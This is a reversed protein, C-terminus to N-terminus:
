GEASLPWNPDFLEPSASHTDLLDGNIFLQWEIMLKPYRAIFRQWAAYHARYFFTKDANQGLQRELEAVKARLKENEQGLENKREQAAKLQMLSDDYMKKLEDPNPSDQALLASGPFALTLIIAGLWVFRAM